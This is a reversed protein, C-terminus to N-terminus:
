DNLYSPQEKQSRDDKKNSKYRLMDGYARPTMRSLGWQYRYNNYYDMYDDIAKEVDEFTKCDVLNIEDKM